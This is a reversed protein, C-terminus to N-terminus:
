HKEKSMRRVAPTDYMSPPTDYMTWSSITQAAAVNELLGSKDPHRFSSEQPQNLPLEQSLHSESFEPTTIAGPVTERNNQKKNNWSSTAQAAALNEMLESKDPHKLSSELQQNLSFEKAQLSKKFEPAITGPFMPRSNQEKNTGSSIAQAAPRNEMLGSKHKLSSELSQNLSLEKAKSSKKFEPAIARPRHPPEQQKKKKDSKKKSGKSHKVQISTHYVPQTVSHRISQNLSKNDPHGRRHKIQPPIKRAKNRGHTKHGVEKKKSHFKSPRKIHGKMIPPASINQLQMETDGGSLPSIVSIDTLTTGLSVEAGEDIGQTELMLRNCIYVFIIVVMLSVLVSTAAITTYVEGAKEKITEKM